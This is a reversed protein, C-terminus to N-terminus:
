NGSRIWGSFQDTDRSESIFASIRVYQIGLGIRHGLHSDVRTIHSPIGEYAVM